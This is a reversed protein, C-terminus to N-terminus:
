ERRRSDRHHAWTSLYGDMLARLEDRTGQRRDEFGACAGAVVFAARALDLDDLDLGAGHAQTWDRAAAFWHDRAAGREGGEHHPSAPRRDIESRIPLREALEGVMGFAWDFSAEVRGNLRQMLRTLRDLLECLGIWVVDRHALHEIYREKIYEAPVRGEFQALDQIRQHQLGVAARYAPPAAATDLTIRSQELLQQGDQAHDHLFATLAQQFLERALATHASCIVGQHVISTGADPAAAESYIRLTKEPAQRLTADVPDDYIMRCRLLEAAQGPAPPTFKIQLVLSEEVNARLQNTVLHTTVTGAGLTVPVGQVQTVVAAGLPELVVRLNAAVIGRGAHFAEHLAQQAKREDDIFHISGGGAGALQNLLDVNWDGGMSICSTSIRDRIWCDRVEREFRAPDTMGRNLQGDTILVVRREWSGDVGQVEHVCRQWAAFLDTEGRPVLGRLTSKLGGAGTVTRLNVVTDVRDDFAVIAVRDASGDALDLLFDAAARAIDLKGGQMSGSRDVALALGRSGTSRGAAAAVAPIRVYISQTPQKARSRPVTRRDPEIVFYFDLEEAEIDVAANNSGPYSGAAGRGGPPAGTSPTAGVPRLLARIDIVDPRDRQLERILDTLAHQQDFHDVVARVTEPFGIGIPNIIHDLRIRFYDALFGKLEDVIYADAIARVLTAKDIEAM